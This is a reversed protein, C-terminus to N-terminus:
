KSPHLILRNVTATEVQERTWLMPHYEINRWHDIMDDYHHSYPHGSEGTTHMSISRALDGLDVIMRMSPLTDVAFGAPMIWYTNNLTGTSGSVAFPGRNVMSEIAGIGSGRTSQQRFHCHAPRGM